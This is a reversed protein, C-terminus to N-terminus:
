ISLRKRINDILGDTRLSQAQRLINKYKVGVIPKLQSVGQVTQNLANGHARTQDVLIHIVIVTALGCLFWVWWSLVMAVIGLVGALVSLGLAGRWLWKSAGTFVFGCVICAGALITCISIWWYLKVRAAALREIKLESTIRDEEQKLQAMAKKVAVLQQELGDAKAAHSDREAIIKEAEEKSWYIASTAPGTGEPYGVRDSCSQFFFCGVMTIVTLLFRTACM